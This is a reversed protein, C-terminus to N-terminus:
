FFWFYSHLMKLSSHSPLSERFTCPRLTRILPTNMWVRILIKIIPINVGVILNIVTGWMDGMSVIPTSRSDRLENRESIKMGWQIQVMPIAVYWAGWTTDPIDRAIPIELPLFLVSPRKRNSATFFRRSWLRFPWLISETLEKPFVGIQQTFSVIKVHFCEQVYLYVYLDLWCIGQNMKPDIKPLPHWSEGHLDCLKPM